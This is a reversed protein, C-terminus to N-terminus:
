NGFPKHVATTQYTLCLLWRSHLLYVYYRCVGPYSAAATDYCLALLAARTLMVIRRSLWMQVDDNHNM